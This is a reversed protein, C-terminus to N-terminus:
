ISAVADPQLASLTALLSEPDSIAYTQATSNMRKVMGTLVQGCGLEVTATIPLATLTEVTKIWQVSSRLQHALKSKLADASTTAQGDVNTIVPISAPGFVFNAMFAEFAEAAPEMLPSHFAGSVALLMARKAGKTKALECAQTVATPTGSVIFQIPTNYNALVLVQGLTKSVEDVVSEAQAQDLGLLAAMAGEDAQAMLAGRKTILQAVSPLDLVGAAYLAAYEGVSHGAVAVPLPADPQKKLAEYAVISALTLAPQTYQTQTLTAEPGEFMVDLLGDISHSAFTNMLAKLEPDHDYFGKAMGVTQSGQGPFLFAVAPKM